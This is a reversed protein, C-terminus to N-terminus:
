QEPGFQWEIREIIWGTTGRHYVSQLGWYRTVHEQSVPEGFLPDNPCYLSGFQFTGETEVLPVFRVGDETWLIRTYDKDYWGDFMVMIIGHKYRWAFHGHGHLLPNAEFKTYPGTLSDSIAVGNDTPRDPKHGKYYMFWKGDFYVHRPNVVQSTDFSVGDGSPEVMFDGVQEWPGEPADSTLCIIGPERRGYKASNCTWGESFLYFRGEYFLVDAQEIALDYSSGDRGLPVYDVATWAKGDESNLYLIWSKRNESPKPRSGSCDPLRLKDIMWFHYKGEYFIIRSPDSQKNLPHPGVAEANRVNLPTSELLRFDTLEPPVAFLGPPAPSYVDDKPLGAPPPPEPPPLPTQDDLHYESQTRAM